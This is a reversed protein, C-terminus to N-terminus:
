KRELERKREANIRAAYENLNLVAPIPMAELEKLSVAGNYFVALNAAIYDL